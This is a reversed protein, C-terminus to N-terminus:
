YYKKYLKRIDNMVELVFLNLEEVTKEEFYETVEKENSLNLKSLDMGQYFSFMINLETKTHTATILIIISNPIEVSEIIKINELEM